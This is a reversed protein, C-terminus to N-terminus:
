EHSIEKEAAEVATDVWDRDFGPMVPLKAVIDKPLADIYELTLGISELLDKIMQESIM